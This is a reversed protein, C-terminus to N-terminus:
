FYFKGALQVSRGPSPDGNGEASQDVQSIQGFHPNLLNGSPASFNAHNFANFAELRLQLYRTGDASLHVNKTVSLNTYNFGPGRFFNRGTNGFTGLPEPSFPTTDFYQLTGNGTPKSRPAFRAINFSSTNPNDGCGFFSYADCWLSNQTGNTVAIPFGTQFATVGSIGWGSLAERAIVNSKLFGAVPVTYVYSTSLRQRADFDSSGYNLSEFGPVYNRVRAQNSGGNASEYGSGDDLAHSYTYAATFQLGHSPAKVLTAQLSNYNSTGESNQEGISTYWPTGNGIVGTSGPVVAPQATYQPFLLHILQPNGACTPNNLCATHGASTIPDGEFWTALRHSVSGVYSVTAVMNGGVARQINLNYNYTYPVNYNPSFTSLGLENYIGWNIASGAAPTTFPFPNAESLSANGTVDAYPNAFAPSGGLDAAGHSTYFVPPDTLNQLSQEEQDRNFYVGFAARVSFDHSGPKGIIASPGASPSWAFGVRPAFHDFRTPIGGAANCGPDGNYSLGPPGGPFVQSTASSIQFCVIGLGGFQRNQNPQEVDWGIGYNVTLDPTVKWNDQAYGYIENAVADIFGDNAQEFTDPIGLAFDIIPDGSSYTGGGNFSYDGNNLYGFPNHVRFQEFSGGFKLSHNGRIWTFNDAYTLNTDIRPQPGEFSNGLNFLNGVGIYPVGSQALQPNISFGLTTPSQVPTPIVSPFNLRYYGGRLENLKNASFTHTYSGNFIKFHESAHQGFGPFSGGGFSLADVSPSSQFVTSGWITDKPSLTYDARIIGQDQASTSLANFNFSATGDNPQPVYTNILKAAVSNWQSPAINVTGNPFCDAWTTPNAATPNAVCSGINFPIPKSSLGASNLAGSGYNTDATFDGSFQAADFTNPLDTQATRARLGQYAAFFFLKNKVVPGGLTGGYLNQHFVPRLQSFYNGNNLFTDRYFEFGSGHFSNTGNKLIQNITSGSNRAFEPNMTSTVINEEYLADPNVEIGESQLPGDNIDTGNLLFSNQATQNGNSSYSGFRDSSEVVGAQLKQLGAPDRGELPIGELQDATAVQELQTNSTEVQLASAEVTVSQQNSGVRLKADADWNANVILTIGKSEFKDFGPAEVIVTYPGGPQLSSFLYYGSNNTTQEVAIGTSTNLATVKAGPIAAGTTDTVTGHISSQTVQALMPLSLASAVLLMFAFLRALTGSLPSFKTKM